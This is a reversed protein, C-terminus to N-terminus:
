RGQRLLTTTPCPSSRRLAHRKLVYFPLSDYEIKRAVSELLPRQLGVRSLSVQFSALVSAQKASKAGTTARLAGALVGVSTWTGAALLHAVGKRGAGTTRARSQLSAAALLGMLGGGTMHLPVQMTPIYVKSACVGM